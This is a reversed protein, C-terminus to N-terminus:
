FLALYHVYYPLLLVKLAKSSLMMYDVEFKVVDQSLIKINDTTSKSHNKETGTGVESITGFRIGSGVLWFTEYRDPEPDM